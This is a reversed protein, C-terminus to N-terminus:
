TALLEALLRIFPLRRSRRRPVKAFWEGPRM